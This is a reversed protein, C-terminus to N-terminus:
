IWLSILFIYKVDSQVNLFIKLENMKNCCDVFNCFCYNVDLLSDPKLELLNLVDLSSLFHIYVKRKSKGRSSCTSCKWPENIVGQCYNCGGAIAAMVTRCLPWPPQLFDPFFIQSSLALHFAGAKIAFLDVAQKPKINNTRGALAVSLIFTIAIFKNKKTLSTNPNSKKEEFKPNSQNPFYYWIFHRFESKSHLQSKGDIPQGAKVVPRTTKAM